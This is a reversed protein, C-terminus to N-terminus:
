GAPKIPRAPRGSLGREARSRSSRFGKLSDGDAAGCRSRRDNPPPRVRSAANNPIMAAASASYPEDCAWCRSGGHNLVEPDELVCGFQGGASRIDYPALDPASGRLALASGGLFRLAKRQMGSCDNGDAACLLQDFPEHSKLPREGFGHLEHGRRFSDSERELTDAHQAIAQSLVSLAHDILQVAKPVARREAGVEKVFMAAM